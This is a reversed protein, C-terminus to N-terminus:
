RRPIGDHGCAYSQEGAAQIADKGNLDKPILINRDDPHGERSRKEPSVTGDLGGPLQVHIVPNQINGGVM